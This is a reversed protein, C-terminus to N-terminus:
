RLLHSTSDPAEESDSGREEPGQLLVLSLMFLFRFVLLTQQLCLPEVDVKILETHVLFLCNFILLTYLDPHM